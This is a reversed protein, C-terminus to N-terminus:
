WSFCAFACLFSFVVLQQRAAAQVFGRWGQVGRGEVETGDELSLAEKSFVDGLLDSHIYASLM